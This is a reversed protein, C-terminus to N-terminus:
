VQSLVTGPTPRKGKERGKAGAGERERGREQRGRKGEGRERREVRRKAGGGVREDERGAKQM